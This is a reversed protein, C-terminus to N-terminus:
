ESISVRLVNRFDARETLKNHLIEYLACLAREIIFRLASNESTEGDNRFEIEIVNLSFLRAFYM